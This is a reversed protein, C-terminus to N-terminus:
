FVLVPIEIADTQKKPKKESAVEMRCPGLFGSCHCRVCNVGSTGLRKGPLLTSTPMYCGRERRPLLCSAVKIAKLYSFWVESFWLSFPARRELSTVASEYVSHNMLQKWTAFSIIFWWLFVELRVLDSNEKLFWCIYERSKMFMDKNM